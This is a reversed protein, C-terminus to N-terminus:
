EILLVNLFKRDNRTQFLKKDTLNWKICRLINWTKFYNVLSKPLAFIRFYNASPNELLWKSYFYFKSLHFEMLYYILNYLLIPRVVTVTKICYFYIQLLNVVMSAQYMLRSDEM